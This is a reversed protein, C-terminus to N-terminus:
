EWKSGVDDLNIIMSESLGEIFVANKFHDNIGSFEEVSARSNADSTTRKVIYKGTLLNYSKDIHYTHSAKYSVDYGIVQVQKNKPQYRLKIRRSFAATGDEYYGFEIVNNRIKIQTPYVSTEQLSILDVEYTKKHSSVHLIFKYASFQVTDEVILATDEELDADFDIFIQDMRKGNAPSETVVTYGEPIELQPFATLPLLLLLLFIAQKQFKLM